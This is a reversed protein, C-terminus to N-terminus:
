FPVELDAVINVLEDLDRAWHTVCGNLMTGPQEFPGPLAIIPVGATHAIGVEIGSDQGSPGLYIFADAGACSERCFHFAAKTDDSDLLARREHPPATAPIPPALKTWDLVEHGRQELLATLCCVALLNRFSSSIYIRM